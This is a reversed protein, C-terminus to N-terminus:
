VETDLKDLDFQYLPYMCFGSYASFGVPMAIQNAELFELAWPNNNVDIFQMHEPLDYDKPMNVTLTTLYEGQDSIVQVALTNNAAYTNKILKFKFHEGFLDLEYFM